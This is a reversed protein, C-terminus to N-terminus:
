KLTEKKKSTSNSENSNTTLNNNQNNKLNTQNNQTNLNNMVTKFTKNQLNTLCANSYNHPKLNCNKSCCPHKSKPIALRHTLNQNSIVSNM